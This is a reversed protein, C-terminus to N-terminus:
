ECNDLMDSLPKISSLNSRFLNDWLELAINQIKLDGKAGDLLRVSCQIMNEVILGGSWDTPGAVLGNGVAELVEAFARIDEGSDSLYELFINILAPGQKSQMLHILFAKDRHIDVCKDFFLRDIGHLRNPSCDILHLLIEESIIHNEDTNYSSAAQFCIKNEQLESLTEAIIFQKAKKDNFFIAVACLMGAASEALDKVGSKCASILKSRYYEPDNNYDQFLIDWVGRATITRLDQNVLNKFVSVCFEMDFSYYPMVSTVVAFRVAPHKDSCATVIIPRFRKSLERHEWLLSGVTYLAIGRVCNISNGLLTHASTHQPDDSSTIVYENDAPEPHHLVMQEILSLVDESWTQAAQVRVLRAIAAAIERNTSRAFKRIVRTALEVDFPQGDKNEELANIVAYVYGFYCDDPFTLSLQAFREPQKKAQEALSRSFSEHTAEVISDGPGSKWNDELKEGPTSIISLWRKDSIKSLKDHIPSAVFGGGGFTVGSYYYPSNIWPNRDLSAALSKAYPTLRSHEMYPLLEKQLHGWYAYYVPRCEHRSNVELRRKYTAVMTSTGDKWNCIVKELRLFLEQTCSPSFKEVIKKAYSLYDSEDATYVFVRTEFDSLLWSIADNSYKLPLGLVAHAILEHCVVSVPKNLSGIKKLVAEPNQDSFEAFASKVLEVIKRVASDNYNGSIWNDANADSFRYRNKGPALKRTASQIQPFLKEVVSEYNEKAFSTLDSEKGFYIHDHEKGSCTDIILGLISIARDYRSDFLAPIGHFNDLYEPHCRLLSLRFEFMRESDEAPNHCLTWYIKQDEEDNKFAHPSLIDIVFDPASSSISKLLSLNNDNLWFEWSKSGLSKIFQPHGFYVSSIIHSEWEPVSAYADVFSFVSEDPSECQGIVEFVACKYYYRVTSSSMIDYSQKILMARDSELLNQLIILLRYRATPIQSDMPGVLEPLKEGSYLLRLDKSALFYDLFSQHTFAIQKDIKVLLGISVLVEMLKQQDNFLQVPLVFSSNMDMRSVIFDKFQSIEASSFGMKDCHTQIQKWWADMLQYVSSVDNLKCTNELQSWVYLSSPTQLLKRLRASKKEYDSGVIEAVEKKSFDGVQIKRWKIPEGACSSSFLQKLGKDNELDFTRSVFVLSLRGGFFKNVSCAQAIVEKCVDLANASYRGTWRLCDLQDLILVCPKGASMTHLAFVPSEPLGLSRGFNDASGAPIHKDLKISLYLIHNEKLHEITEQICGSKGSGAKGCLMISREATLQSVVEDTEARHILKNNIPQFTDWYIENITNIRDLVVPDQHYNRLHIDNLKLYAVVDNSTIKVGYSQTDNAYQGLLARVHNAEGSFAMCVHENLDRDAEKGTPVTEYYCHALIKVLRKLDSTNDKDLGYYTACDNFTDRLKQNSLQYTKFDEASLNTRARKCLEPLENYSLPSIFYYSNNHGSEVHAKSCDFVRQASLDSISWSNSTSNSAKCQYYEKAGDFRMAVYEVGNGEPGVPEVVIATYKEQVLRLLLRALYQNEYQNGYKDARGGIELSM